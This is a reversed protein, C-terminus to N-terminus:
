DSIFIASSGVLTTNGKYDGGSFTQGALSLPCTGEDKTIKYTIGTINARLEVDKPPGAKNVVESVLGTQSGIQVECRNGIIGATIRILNAGACEIDTSGLYSSGPSPAEGVHVLYDCGETDVTATLGFAKCKEYSPHLTV